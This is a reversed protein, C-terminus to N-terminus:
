VKLLGNGAVKSGVTKVDTRDSSPGGLMQVDLQECPYWPNDIRTTPVTVHTLPM